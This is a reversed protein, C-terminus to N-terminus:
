CEIIILKRYCIDKNILIKHYKQMNKLINFFIIINFFILILM